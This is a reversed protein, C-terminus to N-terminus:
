TVEVPLVARVPETCNVDFKVASLRVVPQVSVTCVYRSGALPMNVVGPVDSPCFVKVVVPESTSIALLFAPAPGYESVVLIVSTAGLKPVEFVDLPILPTALVVGM